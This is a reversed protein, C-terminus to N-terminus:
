KTAKQIQFCAQERAREPINTMVFQGTTGNRIIAEGRRKKQTPALTTTSM